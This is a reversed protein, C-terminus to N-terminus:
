TGAAQRPGHSALPPAGSIEIREPPLLLLEGDAGAALTHIHFYSPQDDAANMMPSPASVIRLRGCRGFWDVHRHGHMVVARRGLTQLQRALWSGNILSTGIRESFSSSRTPYELLHHHLAIIWRARPYQLAVGQLARVHESSIMGLANTFSFHTEATSNLLIIGLGDDSRPPVIMPFADAWLTALKSSLRITGSDAFGVMDNARPALLHALTTSTRRTVRDVVFVRDAQVAAIASLARMQRLRMMPNIPLELRAPNARDVINIDHNGPLLVALAALGPRSSLAIIFESWESSRGADTIDGAILIHDLPREAHIADLRDLIRAFRQNGQPGARGSEIRFGFPEGVLHLDSLLAVRWRQAGEPARDFTADDRVHPMSADAIGWALAAIALYGNLIVVTNALAPLVIRGPSMLNSFDGIWRTHPWALLAIWMAVGCLVIGAGLASFARLGVLRESNERGLLLESVHRLSERTLAYLPQVAVSKLSWFGQEIARMLRRGGFWGVAVLGITLLLPWIGISLEALTRSTRSLWASGILPSAGLVFGPLAILLLWTAVLKPLSIEALMTGAIALLSRRKPSSADDEVDGLRPDIIPRM